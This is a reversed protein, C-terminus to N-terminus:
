NLLVLKQRHLFRKPPPKQHLMWDITQYSHDGHERSTEIHILYKGANVAKGQEDKGDWAL